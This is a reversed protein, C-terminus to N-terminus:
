NGSTTRNPPVTCGREARLRRLLAFIMLALAILAVLPQLPAWISLAGSAGLAAVVLSNCSPCGVAFATLLGGGTLGVGPSPLGGRPRYYTALALGALVSSAIWVPYNWWLAATMRTFFPTSFLGTPVGVLVATGAAALGAAAWRQHPWDGMGRVASWLSPQQAAPIAVVNCSYSM